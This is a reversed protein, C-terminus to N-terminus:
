VLCLPTMRFEYLRSPRFLATASIPSSSAEDIELGLMTAGKTRPAPYKPSAPHLGITLGKGAQYHTVKANYRRDRLAPDGYPPM